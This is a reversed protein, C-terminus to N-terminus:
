ALSPHKQVVSMRRWAKGLGLTDGVEPHLAFGLFVIAYVIHDDIVPNTTGSVGLTAASWMLLMLLAGGYGALRVGVGLVLALGIALLGLMFLWDTVVNGAIAQYFGSLWGTTHSLFGNTPSGGNLWSNASKTSYGLGFTKDAFAWLFIAGLAFRLGAFVYNWSKGISNVKTDVM